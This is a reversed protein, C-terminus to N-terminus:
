INRALFNGKMCSSVNQKALLQKCIKAVSEANYRCYCFDIRWYDPALDEIDSALCFPRADFVFTQCNKSLVNFHKEHSELNLWKEKKSCVRCDHDRICGVSTFLPVDQYIVLTTPLVSHKILTRINEKTDEVSLTIQSAGIEKAFAVAQSNLM